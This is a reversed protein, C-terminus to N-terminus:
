EDSGQYRGRDFRSRRDKADNSGHVYIVQDLVSSKTNDRYASSMEKNSNSKKENVANQLINWHKELIMTGMSEESSGSKASRVKDNHKQEQECVREYLQPLMTKGQM